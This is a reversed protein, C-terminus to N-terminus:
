ADDGEYRGDPAVTCRADQRVAAVIQHIRDIAQELRFSQPALQTVIESREHSEQKLGEIEMLVDSKRREYSCDGRQPLMFGLLKEIACLLQEHESM